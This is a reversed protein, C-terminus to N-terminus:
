IYPPNRGGYVSVNNLIGMLYESDSFFSVSLSAYKLFHLQNTYMSVLNGSSSFHFHFYSLQASEAIGHVTYDM